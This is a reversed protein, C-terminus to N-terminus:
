QQQQQQQAAPAAAEGIREQLTAKNQLELTMRDMETQLADETGKLTAAEDVGHELSVDANQGLTENMEERLVDLPVGNQKERVISGLQNRLSRGMEGLYAGDRKALYTDLGGMKRMTRMAKTSVHLKLNAQLIDSWVSKLQVNPRWTRATKQRSKPIVNGSQPLAGDFLGRQSRKFVQGSLVAAAQTPRSASSSRASTKLSQGAGSGRVGRYTTRSTQLVQTAWM